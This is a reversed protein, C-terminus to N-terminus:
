EGAILTKTGNFNKEYLPLQGLPIDGNRTAQITVLLLCSNIMLDDVQEGEKRSSVKTSHNFIFQVAIRDL